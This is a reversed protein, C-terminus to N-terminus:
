LSWKGVNNGNADMVAGADQGSELKTAIQRLIRACEARKAEESEEGQETFAENDTAFTIKM